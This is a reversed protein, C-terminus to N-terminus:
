ALGCTNGEIDKRNTVSCSPDLMPPELDKINSLSCSPELLLVEVDKCNSVSCYHKQMRAIPCQAITSRCEQLQVSLL